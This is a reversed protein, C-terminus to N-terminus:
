NSFFIKLMRKLFQTLSFGVWLLCFSLSLGVPARLLLIWGSSFRSVTIFYFDVRVAVSFITYASGFQTVHRSRILASLWVLPLVRFWFHRSLKWRTMLCIFRQNKNLQLILYKLMIIISAHGSNCWKESKDGITRIQQSEWM